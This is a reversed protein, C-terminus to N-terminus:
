IQRHRNSKLNSFIKAVAGTIEFIFSAECNTLSLEFNIKERSHDLDMLSVITNYYRPELGRGKLQLSEIGVLGCSEVLKSTLL